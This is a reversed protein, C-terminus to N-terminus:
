KYLYIETVIARTINSCCYIITNARKLSTKKEKIDSLVDKLETRVQKLDSSLEDSEQNLQKSQAMLYIILIKQKLHKTFVHLSAIELVNLCTIKVL